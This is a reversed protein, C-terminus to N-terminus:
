IEQPGGTQPQVHEEHCDPLDGRQGCEGPVNGSVPAAAHQWSVECHAAPFFFM